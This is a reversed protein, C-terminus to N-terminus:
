EEEVFAVEVKSPPSLTLRSLTEVVVAVEVNADPMLMFPSVNVFRPPPPHEPRSFPPLSVVSIFPPTIQEASVPEDKAYGNVGCVMPPVTCWAM